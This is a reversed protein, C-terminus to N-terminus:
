FGPRRAADHSCLLRLGIYTCAIQFLLFEFPLALTVATLM